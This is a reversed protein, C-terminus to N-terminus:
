DITEDLVWERLSPNYVNRETEEKEKERERKRKPKSLSNQKIRWLPQTENEHRLKM